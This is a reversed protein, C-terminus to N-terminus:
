GKIITATMIFPKQVIYGLKIVKMADELRKSTYESSPLYTSCLMDDGNEDSEKLAFSALVQINNEKCVKIIENM